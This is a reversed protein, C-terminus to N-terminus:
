VNNIEQIIRGAHHNLYDVANLLYQPNEEFLGVAMNCHSCLMSRIKGTIHDHDLCLEKNQNCIACVGGSKEKLISYEEPTIGFKIKLYSKKTLKKYLPNDKNKKYKLKNSCKKCNIDVGDKRTYDVYYESIDKIIKCFNCMRPDSQSLYIDKRKKHLEKRDKRCCSKCCSKYGDTEKSSKYFESMKKTNQCKSCKKTTDLHINLYFDIHKKACDKCWNKKGDPRRRDKSFSDIGKELKCKTCIKNQM